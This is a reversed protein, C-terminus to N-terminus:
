IGLDVLVENSDAGAMAFITAIAQLNGNSGLFIPTDLSCNGTAITQELKENYQDKYEDSYKDATGNQEVFTTKYVEQLKSVFQAETINKSALIEQNSVKSGTAVNINYSNYFELGGWNTQSTIVLSLVDGNLYSDYWVKPTIISSEGNIEEEVRDTIKSKIDDNIAKADVSSINQLNPISYDYSQANVQQDDFTKEGSKEYVTFVYNSLSNADNKQSSNKETVAPTEDTKSDPEQSPQETSVVSNNTTPAATSPETTPEETKKCGSFITIAMALILTFVFLRSIKKM